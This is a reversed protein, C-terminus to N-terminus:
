GRSSGRFRGTSFATVTPKFILQVADLNMSAALACFVVTRSELPRAVVACHRKADFMARVIVVRVNADCKGCSSPVVGSGQGDAIRNFEARYRTLIVLQRAHQELNHDEIQWVAENREKPRNRKVALGRRRRDAAVFIVRQDQSTPVM